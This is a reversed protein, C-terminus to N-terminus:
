RPEFARIAAFFTEAIRQYGAETPHLGDVGILTNVEPLMAAYVDVFIAGEGPAGLRIGQNLNVILEPPLSNNGGPKSPPVSAIFVTAGGARAQRVMTQLGALAPAIGQAGRASLDNSGEMLLVVTAGSQALVQPFRKPGDAAWERPVGANTVVFQSAQTIYRSRLMGLLDTPYSAAPVVVLKYSPFGAADLATGIPVTIEGATMSDGFALFSTRPLPPPAVVVEYSCGATAGRADTTTCAVRTTGVPFTSGPPACATTYPQVGGAAAPPTVQVAVPGGNVSQALVDGPCQLTLAPVPPPTPRTPTDDACSVSVAAVLLVGLWGRRPRRSIASDATARSLVDIM